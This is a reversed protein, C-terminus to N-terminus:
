AVPAPDCSATYQTEEPKSWVPSVVISEGPGLTFTYGPGETYVDGTGDSFGVVRCTGTGEKPGVNTMTGTFCATEEGDCAVQELRM